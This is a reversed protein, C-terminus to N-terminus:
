RAQWAHRCAQRKETKQGKLSNARGVINYALDFLFVALFYAPNGALVSAAMAGIELSPRKEAVWRAARNRIKGRDVADNLKEDIYGLAIFFAVIGTNIPPLGLAIATALLAAIAVQHPRADIKGALLMGITLAIILTAFEASSAALFGAVLGYSAGTALGLLRRSKWAKKDVIDDTAKTLAGCAFVLLCGLLSIV